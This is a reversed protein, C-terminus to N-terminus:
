ASPAEATQIPPLPNSDRTRVALLLQRGAGVLLLAAVTGLGIAAAMWSGIFRTSALEPTGDGAPVDYRIIGHQWSWIAALVALVAVVVLGGAVAARWPQNLRPSSM